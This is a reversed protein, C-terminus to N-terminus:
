IKKNELIIGEYGGIYIEKNIVNKGSLRNMFMTNEHNPITVTKGITSNNLIVYVKEYKYQRSFIYIDNRDDVYVTRFDGQKLAECNKRLQIWQKLCNFVEEDEEDWPMTKRYEAETYGSVAKEDGYLISPIGVSTLLFIFALMLKYKDGNCYYLFRPIDHTDLLNMQALSTQRQYRLLLRNIKEDFEKLGITKAAFYERCINSFGYNMTSDFQDGRLWVESDEWIEGILFADQKVEKISKRFVRWFDHNIENAVDLRWGDIDAEKIWYTGVNCFYEIVEKNGTNLKPMERVYAFAEYSPPTTYEIPFQLKYFWDKYISDEEKELVDRFAFFNAGSHNFVGDLIVKINRQHCERVMEKLDEKNGFSPDIEYYDVTDYKHYEVAKFIPNLYLCNVGLEELYSLNKTIGCLTGGNRSKYVQNDLVIERELGTIYGKDTAFSDPFIQYMVSDKVWSPIHIIDEKRIYPFQFYETRSCTIKECLGGSYYYLARKEDEIYFYYCLRTFDSSIDVEYYDFLSDSSIKEMDIKIVDIPEKVCVRDGYYVSCNKIDGKGTRLRLVVTSEDIAFAYSSLPIHQIAELKM